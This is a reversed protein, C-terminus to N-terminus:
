NNLCELIYIVYLMFTVICISMIVITPYLVQLFYCVQATPVRCYLRSLTVVFSNATAENSYDNHIYEM